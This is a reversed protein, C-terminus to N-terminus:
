EPNRHTGAIQEVTGLAEPAIDRMIDLFGMAMLRQARRILLPAPNAPEHRELYACVADLARSADARSGISGPM